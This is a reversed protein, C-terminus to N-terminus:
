MEFFKIKQLKIMQNFKKLIQFPSGPLPPHLNLNQFFNSTAYLTTVLPTGLHHAVLIQFRQPTGLQHAVLIEFIQPTGTQQVGGINKGM